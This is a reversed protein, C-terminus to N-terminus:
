QSESEEVLKPAIPSQDGNSQDLDCIILAKPPNKGDFRDSATGYTNELLGEPRSRQRRTANPDKQVSSLKLIKYTNSKRSKNGKTTEIVELKELIRIHKRITSEAYGWVQSIDRISPYCTEKNHCYSLLAGLIAKTTSKLDSNILCTRVSISSM